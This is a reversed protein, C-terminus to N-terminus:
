SLSHYTARDTLGVSRRFDSLGEPIRQNKATAPFIGAHMLKLTPSGSKQGETWTSSAPKWGTLSTLCMISGSISNALQTLSQGLFRTAIISEM